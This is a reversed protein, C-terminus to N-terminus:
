PTPIPTPDDVAIIQQTKAAHPDAQLTLNVVDVSTVAPGTAGRFSSHVDVITDNDPPTSNQVNISAADPGDAYAVATYPVMSGHITCWIYVSNVPQPSPPAVNHIPPTVIAGSQEISKDHVAVQSGAPVIKSIAV